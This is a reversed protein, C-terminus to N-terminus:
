EDLEDIPIFVLLQKLLKTCKELDNIDEFLKGSAINNAEKIYRMIDETPMKRELICRIRWAFNYKWSVNFADTGYIYRTYKDIKFCMPTIKSFSEGEKLGWYNLCDKRPLLQLLEKRKKNCEDIDNADDFLPKKGNKLLKWNIFEYYNNTFGAEFCTNPTRRNQLAYIVDENTTYLYLVTELDNQYTEPNYDNFKPFGYKEMCEEETIWELLEDRRKICSKLDNTDFLPYRQHKIMYRNLNEYGWYVNEQIKEIKERDNNLSEILYGREYVYDDHYSNKLEKIGGMMHRQYDPDMGKIYYDLIRM